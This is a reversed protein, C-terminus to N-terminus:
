VRIITVFGKLLPVRKTFLDVVTLMYTGKDWSPYNFRNTASAPIIIDISGTVGGLTLGSGDTLTLFVSDSGFAPKIELFASYGTLNVPLNSLDDRYTISLLYDTNEQIEINQVEM